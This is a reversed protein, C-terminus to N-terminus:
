ESTKTTWCDEQSHRNKKYTIEILDTPIGAIELTAKMDAIIADLENSTAWVETQETVTKGYIPYQSEVLYCYNTDGCSTLFAAFAISCILFFNKMNLQNQHILMRINSITHM